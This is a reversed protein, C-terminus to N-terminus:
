KPSIPVSAETQEWSMVIKGDTVAITFQEVNAALKRVTMSTRGLDMKADYEFGGWQKATKNVILQWDDASPLTFLSYEGAPVELDGIMLDIPTNLTTAEDAGTRWVAGFPVLGGMIERGKAYPRGYTIEVKEEGVAATVVEHPSKRQQATLSMAALALAAIIVATKKM